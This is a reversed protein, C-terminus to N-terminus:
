SPVSDEKAAPLLGHETKLETITAQIVDLNRQYDSARAELTQIQREAQAKQAAAYQSDSVVYVKERPFFSPSLFDFSDFFLSSNM